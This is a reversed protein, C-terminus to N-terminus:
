TVRIFCDHINYNAIMKLTVPDHKLNHIPNHDSMIHSYYLQLHIYMYAHAAIYVSSLM